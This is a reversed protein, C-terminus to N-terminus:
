DDFHPIPIGQACLTNELLEIRQLSSCLVKQMEYFAATAEEIVENQVLLELEIERPFDSSRFPCEPM